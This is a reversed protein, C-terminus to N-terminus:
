RPGLSLIASMLATNGDVVTTELREFRKELHEFRTEMREFRTDM